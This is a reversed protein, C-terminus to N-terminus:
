DNSELADYNPGEFLLSVPTFPVEIKCIQRLHFSRWGEKDLDWVAFPGPIDPKKMVGGNQQVSNDSPILDDNLTCRMVRMEGDLKEFTVVVEEHDKFIGLVDGKNKLLNDANKQEM